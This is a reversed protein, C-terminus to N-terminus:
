PVFPLGWGILALTALLLAAAGTEILEGRDPTHEALWAFRRVAAMRIQSIVGNM